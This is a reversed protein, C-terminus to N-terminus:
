RIEITQKLYVSLRRSLAHELDRRALVLMVSRWSSNVYSGSLRGVALCASSCSHNRSSGLGVQFYTTACKTASLNNRDQNTRATSKLGKRWTLYRWVPPYGRIIRRGHNRHSRRVRLQLSMYGLHIVRLRLRRLPTSSTEGAHTPTSYSSTTPRPLFWTHRLTQM